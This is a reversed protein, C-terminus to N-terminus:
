RFLYLIYEIISVESLIFLNSGTQFMKMKLTSNQLTKEFIYGGNEKSNIYSNIM